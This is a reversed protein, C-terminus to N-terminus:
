VRVAKQGTFTEWRDIIVDVYKPDYEMMFCSRELQECAMLTSGSGGFLDLVKWGKKSSNKILQAMLDIPKMTPHDGNKVPKAYDLVTTQTRDNTFYHGSEKWGYLCPQHKEQYDPILSLAKEVAEKEVGLEAALQEAIPGKKFGYLCPEHKWQYDQRGIVLSSKNWILEQRVELGNMQLALVFPVVNRSAYWVYFGAGPRMSENMREFATSLFVDFEEGSLNDNEIKLADETSGEYDVGYPPDTVVLDALNGNMLAEVDAKVTSDGCMLRHRGLQYIEGRKSKPEPKEEPQYDDETILDDEPPDDFGFATMDLNIQALEEELKDFDWDALEATKNDALRYARIQEDSLDDAYLVPIEEIGLKEAAKLRTHGCVVVNNKDLIVPNRFGFEQISAAVADVAAENKRPNNDYPVIDGIYVYRIEM